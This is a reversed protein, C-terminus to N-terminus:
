SIGGPVIAMGRRFQEEEATQELTQTDNAAAVTVRHATHKRCLPPPLLYHPHIESWEKM